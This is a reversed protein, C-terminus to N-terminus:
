RLLGIFKGLIIAETRRVMPSAGFTNRCAYTGADSMDANKVILNTRETDYKNAFEPRVGISGTAVTQGASSTVFESWILEDGPAELQISCNFYLPTAQGLVHHTNQPEVLFM